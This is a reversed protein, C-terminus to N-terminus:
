KIIWVGDKGKIALKWNFEPFEVRCQNFALLSRGHSPLRYGGKIEWFTREGPVYFDPRYKLGNSMHFTFPQFKHPINALFLREYEKETKSMQEKPTTTKPAPQVSVLAPVKLKRCLTKYEEESMHIGQGM